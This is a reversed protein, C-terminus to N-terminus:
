RHAQDGATPCAGRNQRIIALDASDTLGDLNFDYTSSKGWRAHVARYGALDRSDVVGDDNGDGPCPVQSALIAGREAVLRAYHEHQAETLNDVDGALLDADARDIAPNPTKQDIEYFEETEVVVEGTNPEFDRYRNHVLKFRDDRVAEYIQPLMKLRNDAYQDPDSYYYLAENVQWCEQPNGAADPVTSIAELVFQDDAGDGWWVGGNDECVTKSVPTQSCSSGIACPGNTQGNAQLNLGGQSFNFDRLSASAPDTLYPLMTVSDIRRPVADPVDIDAVEGLLQFVDAVNVMHEVDRGPATVMPGAVILPVWVGTQYGTSKARNPDFPVKVTTGLSGNDGVIVILTNSAAPDYEIGGDAGRTAIGTEVLLRGFESAMAEIMADTILRQNILNGCDDGLRPGVRATLLAGPPPQLPTHAASFSVTAFWPRGNDPRSGIWRIAADVEITSRYGRARPDGLGAAEVRGGRNVVLPSVYHANARDLRVGAPPQAECAAEPVLVGGRTLCQLGPWDGFENAGVIVECDSATGKPTYCAGFAAGGAAHPGPVFGCSYTGRPAIGGASTDISEPLGGTWGYFYDWGLAAPAGNGAENNEPGALHFKGFLATQYRARKLLKAATVENPSVQSNALDNPGIAQYINNRLPYRGTMLVSRGPSCEPMSWTNRFRLGGAAITDLSPVNPAVVGGYGFSRMQDVGVDDMIMLLINPPAAAGDTRAEAVGPTGGMLGFLFLVITAVAACAPHTPMIPHDSTTFLPDNQCPEQQM